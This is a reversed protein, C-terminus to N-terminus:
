RACWEAGDPWGAIESASITIVGPPADARFRVWDRPVDGFPVRIGGVSHGTNQHRIRSM